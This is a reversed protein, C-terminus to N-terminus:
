RNDHTVEARTNWLAIAQEKTREDSSPGEGDCVSCRVWYTGGPMTDTLEGPSGCFPCPKLDM